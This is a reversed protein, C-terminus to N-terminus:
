SSALGKGGAPTLRAGSPAGNILPRTALVLAHVDERSLSAQHDEVSDWLETVYVAEVDLASTSVIYMRCADISKMLEASLLLQAILEDRKGKHAALRGQLIHTLIPTESM